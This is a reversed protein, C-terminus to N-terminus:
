FEFPFRQQKTSPTKGMGSWISFSRASVDVFNVTVRAWGRVKGPQIVGDQLLKDLPLTLTVRKSQPFTFRNVDWLRVVGGKFVNEQYAQGPCVMSQGALNPRDFELCYYAGVEFNSHWSSVTVNLVADRTTRGYILTAKPEPWFLPLLTLYVFAAIVAAAVMRARKNM